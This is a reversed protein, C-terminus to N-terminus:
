PVSAGPAGDAGDSGPAGEAGDGDAGHAGDSGERTASIYRLKTPATVPEYGAIEVRVPVETGDAGPPMEVQIKTKAVVAARVAPTAGFFVKVAAKTDFGEGEITGLRYGKETVEDPVLRTITPAPKNTPPKPADRCALLFMVVIALRRMVALIAM